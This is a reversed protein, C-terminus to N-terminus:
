MWQKKTSHSHRSSHAKQQKSQPVTCPWVVVCRTRTKWVRKTGRRKRWMRIGYITSGITIGTL